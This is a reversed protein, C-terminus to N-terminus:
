YANKATHAVELMYKREIHLKESRSIAYFYFHSTYLLIVQLPYDILDTLSNQAIGGVGEKGYSVDCKISEHTHNPPSSKLFTQLSLITSIHQPFKCCESILSTFYRHLLLHFSRSPYLAPLSFLLIGEEYVDVRNKQLKGQMKEEKLQWNIVSLLSIILNSSVSPLRQDNWSDNSGKSCYLSAMTHFDLPEHLSGDILSVDQSATPLEFWNNLFDFLNGIGLHLNFASMWDANEYAVHSELERYLL